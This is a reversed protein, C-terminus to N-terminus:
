NKPSKSQRTRIPDLDRACFRICNVSADEGKRYADLKGEFVRRMIDATSRGTRKTATVLNVLSTCDGTWEPLQRINDGFNKLDPKSFALKGIGNSADTRIVPCIVGERYLSEAQTRSCGIEDPLLHLSVSDIIDRCLQEALEADFVLRHAALDWSDDSALGAQVLIKRLRKCHLGTNVSLSHVSHLRRGVVPEGLLNGGPEVVITDLIHDRLLGLIPGSDMAQPGRIRAM